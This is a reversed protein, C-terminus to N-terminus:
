SKGVNENTRGFYSHKGYHKKHYIDLWIFFPFKKGKSGSKSLDDV